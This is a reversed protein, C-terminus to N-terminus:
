AWIETDDVPVHITYTTREARRKTKLSGVLEIIIRNTVFLFPEESQMQDHTNSTGDQDRSAGTNLDHTFSM